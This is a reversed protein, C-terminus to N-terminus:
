AIAARRRTRLAAGMAGVGLLMLAWTAPEPVVGVGDSIFEYVVPVHVGLVFGPQGFSPQYFAWNTHEDGVELITVNDPYLQTPPGSTDALSDATPVNDSYFLLSGIDGSPNVEDGNFRIVDFIPGGVGDQMLVDGSVLGPPGLLDYTVIGSLGGPGPDNQFSWPLPAGGFGSLFGHGNEDVTVLFKGHVFASANSAAGLAALAFTAGALSKLFKHM